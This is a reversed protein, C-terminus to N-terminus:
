LRLTNNWENSIKNNGLITDREVENNRSYKYRTYALLQEWRLWFNAFIDESMKYKRKCYLGLALTQFDKLNGSVSTLHPILLRATNQWVTQLALPDRSGKIKYDDDVSTLFYTSM